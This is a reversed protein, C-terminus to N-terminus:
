SAIQLRHEDYTIKKSLSLAMGKRKGDFTNGSIPDTPRTLFFFGLFFIMLMRSTPARTGWCLQQLALFLLALTLM